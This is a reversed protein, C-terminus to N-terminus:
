ISKKRAEEYSLEEFNERKIDLMKYNYLTKKLLMLTKHERSRSYEAIMRKTAIHYYGFEINRAFNIRKTIFEPSNNCHDM